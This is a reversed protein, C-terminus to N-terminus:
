NNEGYLTGKKKEKMNSLRRELPGKELAFTAGEEPQRRKVERDGTCQDM